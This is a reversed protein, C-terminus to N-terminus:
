YDDVDLHDVLEEESWLHDVHIHGTRALESADDSRKRNLLLKQLQIMM